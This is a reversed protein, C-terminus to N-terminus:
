CTIYGSFDTLQLLITWAGKYTVGGVIAADIATAVAGSTVLNTSDNTVTGDVNAGIEGTTNDYTLYDAFCFCNLHRYHLLTLLLM